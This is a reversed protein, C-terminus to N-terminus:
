WDYDEVYSDFKVDGDWGAKRFLRRIDAQMAPSILKNGKRYEFYTTRKYREMLEGRVQSVVSKPMDDTFMRTMGCAMQVKSGTRYLPCKDTGVNDHLPNVCKAVTLRSPYYKGVSSRLCQGSLPCGAVYCVTYGNAAKETFLEEKTM